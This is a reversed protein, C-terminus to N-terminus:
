ITKLWNDIKDMGQEYPITKMTGSEYEKVADSVRKKAEETTISPYGDDLMDYLLENFKEQINVGSKILQNYLNDQVQLHITQM